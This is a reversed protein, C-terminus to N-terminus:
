WIYCIVEGGMGAKRAEINTLVGQSTSIVALGLGGRVIPIDDKRVYVRCGPTSVRQLSKIIRKKGPGYRLYIRLIGQRNDKILTYNDIYKGELLIRAIEQKLGSSPVDVKVQGRHNANRIRTLLDAIPDTMTM